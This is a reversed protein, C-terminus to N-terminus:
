KSHRRTAAFEKRLRHVGKLDDTATRRINVRSDTDEVWAVPVEHVTLGRREAKVLLETDFFWQTDAVEPLLEQALERRIAKFGCQADSTSLGLSIRLVYNYSRSILERKFSRKVKSEKRLRSGTAIQATGEALPQIMPLLSELSTSLDVDMYTLIDAKSTLWARNLARGRGKQDMHIAKIGTGEKALASAIDWTGDNSGNDVITITSEYPISAKLFANLKHMQVALTAAENLVPIVVEVTPQALAAVGTRNGALHTSFEPLQDDAHDISRIRSIRHRLTTIATNM